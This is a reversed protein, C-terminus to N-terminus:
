VPIRMRDIYFPVVDKKNNLGTIYVPITEIATSYLRLKTSICLSRSGSIFPKRVPHKKNAIVGLGMFFYDENKMKAPLKGPFDKM